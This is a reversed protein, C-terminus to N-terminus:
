LIFIMFLFDNSNPNDARNIITHIFRDYVILPYENAFEEQIPFIHPSPVDLLLLVLVLVLVLLLLGSSSLTM